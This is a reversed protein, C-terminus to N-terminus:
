KISGAVAAKEAKSADRGKARADERTRRREAYERKRQEFAERHAIYRAAYERCATLHRPAVDLCYSRSDATASTAILCLAITM